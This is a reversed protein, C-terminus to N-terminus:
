KKELVGRIAKSLERMTFPKQIFGDCGRKLIETAQGNISYGSSLLVKINPNIEKMRDYAEGGGIVPMIMDLIVIDINEKNAKYIDVAERGGEAILVNYGLTKLLEQGVDIIIEEDDVLLVTEKGQIIEVGSESEARQAIGEAKTAPLYIYFTTGQGKKSEVDIYGGHAKIIGYVSALGLGTGKALGKTTFFPDFVKDKTEKDMGIGTDRITLLIYEGPKVKYPKGKIDKHTVNITHLFLDGGGPMAEAANVYINLLVQEIQGLDAKVGYLDKDLDQHITIDKKTMSFTASTEKIIQNMSIPKVEYRGGRAYGLLQSTLKSGSQVLKEINTLRQYHPHNSDTDLLMLSTNGQISMLLNNFNHAIGGALTGIAEMKQAQLLQAQLNQQETIDEYTVIQNGNKLMVSRFYIDKQSGDKCRVKFERPRLEGPKAGSLDSLWASIVENKYAPDPYAVKFWLKGTPIDELTYGFIETFKPNIYEYKGDSNIITMGFPANEALSAFRERESQLNQEMLKRETVDRLIGRFGTPNGESDKILSVSIEVFGKTGGKRILEWDLIKSPIGTKYVRNFGQYVKKANEENMYQRNNVGIIENKPYGLIKCLSDNVFTSNGAIDVEYYGEEISELITRYKEESKRLAEEAKKRATIDTIFVTRIGSPMLSSVFQCIRREGDKRRIAAERIRPHEEPTITKRAEIVLRRYEEDPYAKEIWAQVDLIEEKSYGTIKEFQSNLILIKGGHDHVMIGYPASEISVRYRKEGERLAEEAQKRETIDMLSAVSRKTGPIIGTKLFTNKVNGQRDIFRFEYETPAESEKSRRIAHYEKMRKLDETDVFETWKKKGEIEERSYGSLKEFETNAVSITMDEELLVIATGTSEFVSRYRAESKQLAEEARKRDTVDIATIIAGEPFPSININWVIDDYELEPFEKSKGSNICDMLEARMNIKHKGAYDETYMRDGANPLRGGPRQKAAKEKAKNFGAVRGELDVTITEIPNNMFLTRYLDESERLEATRKKVLEELHDRHKRLEEDAQKRKFVEKELGKVRQELEEYTPKKAM